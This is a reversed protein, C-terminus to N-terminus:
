PFTLDVEVRGSEPVTIEVREDPLRGYWVNLKYRGAPVNKIVFRGSEDCKAFYPNKLVLIFASMHPHIDCYVKVVGPKDFTVSKSKGTPYRGLDFTRIGSFSFVNHYVTDNNPFEVKTGVVVPLVHPIFTQDVQDLKADTPPRYGPPMAADEVFVVVEESKKGDSTGHNDHKGAYRRILARSIIVSEEDVPKQLTVKGVVDGASLPICEFLLLAFFLLVSKGPKM